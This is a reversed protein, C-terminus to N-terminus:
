KHDAIVDSQASKWLTTLDSTSMNANTVEMAMILFKDSPLPTFDLTLVSYYFFCSFIVISLISILYYM